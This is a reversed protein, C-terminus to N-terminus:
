VPVVSLIGMKTLCKSPPLIKLQVFSKAQDDLTALDYVILPTKVMETFLTTGTEIKEEILSHSLKSLSTFNFFVILSIFVVEITLFSLIFRYRFSM